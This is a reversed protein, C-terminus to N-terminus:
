FYHIDLIEGLGVGRGGGGLYQNNPLPIIGDIFLVREGDAFEKKLCDLKALKEIEQKRNYRSRSYLGGVYDDGESAQTIGAPGVSVRQRLLSDNEM